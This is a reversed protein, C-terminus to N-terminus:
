NSPIKLKKGKPRIRQTHKVFGTQNLYKDQQKVSTFRPRGDPLVDIDPFQQRHEKIQSPHVALSDSVHEYDGKAIGIGDLNWRMDLGCRHCKHVSKTSVDHVVAGCSDCVFEHM